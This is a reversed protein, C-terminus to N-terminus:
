SKVFLSRIGGTIRERWPRNDKPENDFEGSRVKPYESAVQAGFLMINSSLNVWLLLGVGAGLTGLVADYNGFNRLYFSFGFKAAEFLVTAVAAGPWVDGLGLRTAPVIWYLTLFAAFSLLTSIGITALSWAASQSAIIEVVPVDDLASRAFTAIGTLVISGIFFPALALVMGLDLLKQQVVPRPADVNYAINISRRIAGFLSSASWATLLLGAGGIVGSSPQGLGAVLDQLDSRGQVADLPVADLIADVLDKQLNADRLVLGTIGSVFLLLPFIAFLAYYSIGAALHTCHDQSFEKASRRVLILLRRGNLM